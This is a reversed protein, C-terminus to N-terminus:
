RDVHDALWQFITKAVPVATVTGEGGGEVLVVIALRPDDVPAYGTFWAHTAQVDDVRPGFQATGTKGAVAIPLTNLSRASGSEVTQRLGARVVELAATPEISSAAAIPATPTRVNTSPDVTAEVV